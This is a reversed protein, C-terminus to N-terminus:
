DLVAVERSTELAVFLYVGLKDFVAASAVSANDHDIRGGLDEVGAGLVVRSSIARVTNQFNLGTGDRLAGRKINDQKSPVFGQTADPSIAMAGLYNPIGRGQNEFDPRESHALVITGVVGMSGTSLQVVQGGVAINNVTTQVSATAEGPLSPTIFQSVYVSAGD